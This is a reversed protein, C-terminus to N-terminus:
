RYSVSDDLIEDLNELQLMRLNSELINKLEIRIHISTELLNAM